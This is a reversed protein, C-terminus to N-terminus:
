FTYRLSVGYERPRGVDYRRTGVGAGYFDIGGVFYFEDTLNNGYLAANWRGSPDTLAIRAGFLDYSKLQLADADTATSNQQDQYSYNASLALEWKSGVTRRYEAALGATLEPARQLKSDVTIGNASGVDDYGIDLTALNGSIRLHRSVQLVTELEFGYGTAAAANQLVIASGTAIPVVQQVQIDKWDTYFVTPNIRLRSDFLDMRAGLEYNTAEEPDFPFYRNSTFNFGGGRFGTSVTAYTMLDDTWKYRAGVRGTTSDFTQKRADLVAHTIPNSAEVEKEDQNQRVGALVTFRSTVDFSADFFGALSHTDRDNNAARAQVVGVRISEAGPQQGQHQEERFWFVGGVMQLRDELASGNIQLEQSLAEVDTVGSTDFIQTPSGDLDNFNYSAIDQWGSLSKVSVSDSVQWNVELSGSRARSKSRDRRSTGAQCYDCSSVFRNDYLPLGRPPAYTSNWIGSALPPRGMIPGPQYYPFGDLDYDSNQFAADITISSIPEVRLAIRYLESTTAGADAGGNQQRVFGDSVLRGGTARIAARDGLPINLMGTLDLRGLNGGTVSFNGAFESDPKKTTYRIAGGITNRGFLTGQPGRLVEVQEVDVISFVAGQLAPYYLDDVYIGVAPESGNGSRQQGMGRLFFTASGSGDGPSQTSVQLGPTIRMLDQTTRVNAQEIDEPTIATVALPADQLNESRRQATVIIQEIQGSGSSATAEQAHATNVGLAPATLLSATALRLGLRRKLHNM